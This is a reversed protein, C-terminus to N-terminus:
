VCNLLRCACGMPLMPDLSVAFLAAGRRAPPPLRLRFGAHELVALLGGDSGSCTGALRGGSGSGQQAAKLEAFSRCLDVAKAVTREAILRLLARDAVHAIDTCM